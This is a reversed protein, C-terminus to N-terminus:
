EPLENEEPEDWEGNNGIILNFTNETEDPKPPTYLIGTYRIIKNAIPIIDTVTRKRLVQNDSGTATLTVSIKEDGTPISKVPNDKKKRKSNM